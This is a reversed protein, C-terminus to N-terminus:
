PQNTVNPETASSCFCFFRPKFPISWAGSKEWCQIIVLTLSFSVRGKPAGNTSRENRYCMPIPMSTKLYQQPFFSQNNFQAMRPTWQFLFGLAQIRNQYSGQTLLIEFLWIQLLFCYHSINMKKQRLMGQLWRVPVQCHLLSLRWWNWSRSWWFLPSLLYNNTKRQDRRHRRGLSRHSRWASREWGESIKM